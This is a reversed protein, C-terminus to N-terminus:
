KELWKMDGFLVKGENLVNMVFRDLKKRRQMIEKVSIYTPVVDVDYKSLIEQSSESVREKIKEKRNKYVILMDIDSKEKAEGRAVSGFLIMNKIGTKELSRTFNNAIKKLNEKEAKFLNKLEKYLLHSENIKYLKSRGVSRALLMRHSVLNKLAPHVTGFSMKTEKTITDFTYERKPDEIMKKLIRVKARSSFIEELM